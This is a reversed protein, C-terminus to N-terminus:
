CIKGINKGLRFPNEGTHQPCCYKDERGPKSKNRLPSLSFLSSPDSHPKMRKECHSVNGEALGVGRPIGEKFDGLKKKKKKEKKILDMSFLKCTNTFNQIELGWLTWVKELVCRVEVLKNVIRVLNKQSDEPLFTCM